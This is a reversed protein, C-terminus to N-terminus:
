RLNYKIHVVIIVIKLARETIDCNNNNNIVRLNISYTEGKEVEFSYELFMRM